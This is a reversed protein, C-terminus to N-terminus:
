SEEFMIKIYRANSNGSTKYLLYATAVPDSNQQRIKIV